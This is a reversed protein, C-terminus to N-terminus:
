DSETIAIHSKKSCSFNRWMYLVCIEFTVFSRAYCKWQFFIHQIWFSIFSLTIPTGKAEASQIIVNRRNRCLVLNCCGFTIDKCTVHSKGAPCDKAHGCEVCQQIDSKPGCQCGGKKCCACDTRNHACLAFYWCNNKDLFTLTAISFTFWHGILNYVHEITTQRM